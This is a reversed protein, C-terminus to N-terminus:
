KAPAPPYDLTAPAVQELAYGEDLGVLGVCYYASRHPQGFLGTKGGILKIASLARANFMSSAEDCAAAIVLAGKPLKSIADHLRNAAQADKSTDFVEKLLVKGKDFAVVNLGHREAGGDIVPLTNLAIKVKSGGNFGASHIQVFPLYPTVRNKGTGKPNRVRSQVRLLWPQVADLVEQKAEAATAERLLKEIEDLHAANRPNSASPFSSLGIYAWKAKLNGVTEGETLDTSALALQYRTEATLDSIKIQKLYSMGKQDHVEISFNGDKAKVAKIKTGEGIPLNHGDTFMLTLARNDAGVVECGKEAATDMDAFWGLMEKERKLEERLHENVPQEIAADLWKAAVDLHGKELSSSVGILINDMEEWKKIAEVMSKFYKDHGLADVLAGISAKAVVEGTGADGESFKAGNLLSMAKDIQGEEALKKAQTVIEIGRAEIATQLQLDLGTRQLAEVKREDEFDSLAKQAAPIDLQAIAEKWVAPAEEELTLPKPAPATKVRSEPPTVSPADKAQATKEDDTTKKVLPPAEVVKQKVSVKEEETKPSDSVVTKPPAVNEVSPPPPLSAPTPNEKAPPPPPLERHEVVPVAKPETKGMFHWVVLIGALLAAAMAAATALTSQSRKFPIAGILSSSVKVPKQSKTKRGNKEKYLEYQGRNMAELADVLEQASQFREAPNKQMLRVIVEAVDESIGENVERPDPVAATLHMDMIAHSNPAVYPVRGTVMHFWTAGLAYLDTRVDLKDVEGRIQEPAMYNPTGLTVGIQTLDVASSSKRNQMEPTAEEPTNDFNGRALGLDALKVEGKSTLLINDPKVDRHVIGARQACVLAAAVGSVIELTRREEIFREQKLAVRVTPGDVYEMAFYYLGTTEDRGVEIGQVINPHNLKASTRAERIFREVFVKNKAISPPLVKVAVLRDMTVQKAKFVSGMGGQGIKSILEFQGLMKIAKQPAEAAM